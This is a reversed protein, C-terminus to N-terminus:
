IFVKFEDAIEGLERLTYVKDSSEFGFQESETFNHAIKRMCDPCHWDSKPVEFMRPLVHIDVYNFEGKCKICKLKVDCQKKAPSTKPSKLDNRRSRRIPGDDLTNPLVGLFFFKLVKVVSVHTNCTYAIFSM